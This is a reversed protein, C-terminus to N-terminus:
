CGTIYANITDAWTEADAVGVVLRTYNKGTLNVQLVQKGRTWSVFARDGKQVYTGAIVLGPLGTGPVRLGLRMWWKSDLVEAGTISSLPLTIDGHLAALKEGRSLKVELQTADILLEPM